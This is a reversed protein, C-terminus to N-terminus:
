EDPEKRVRFADSFSRLPTSPQEYVLRVLSVPRQHYMLALADVDGADDSARTGYQVGVRGERDLIRTLGAASLDDLVKALAEARVHSSEELESLSFTAEPNTHLRMLVELHDM